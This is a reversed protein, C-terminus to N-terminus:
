MIFYRENNFLIFLEFYLKESKEIFNIYLNHSSSIDNLSKANHRDIIIFSFFDYKKLPILQTSTTKDLPSKENSTSNDGPLLSIINLLKDCTFNCKVPFKEDDISYKDALLNVKGCHIYNYNILKEKVRKEFDKYDEFAKRFTDSLVISNCDHEPNYLSNDKNKEPKNIKIDLRDKKIESQKSSINEIKTYNPSIIYKKDSSIISLEYRLNNNESYYKIYLNYIANSEHIKQAEQRNIQISSKFQKELSSLRSIKECNANINVPLNNTEFNYEDVLLRVSGISIYDYDIIKNALSIYASMRKNNFEEDTEFPSKEISDINLDINECNYIPKKKWLKFVGDASLSIVKNNYSILQSIWDNHANINQITKNQNTDYVRLTRDDGGTFIYNNEILLCWIVQKIDKIDNILSLNDINWIKVTKDKSSTYLKNNYIKIQTIAETHEKCSSILSGNALNFVRLSGDSLGAIVKNQHIIISWASLELKIVGILSKAEINWIKITKDLSSSILFNDKCYICYIQNEHALISTSLKLTDLNWIRITKDTSASILNNNQIALSYVAGTHATLKTILKFNEIDWVKITRDSSGTILYNNHIIGCLIDSDHANVTKYSDITYKSPNYLEKTLINDKEYNILNTYNRDQVKKTVIRLEDM